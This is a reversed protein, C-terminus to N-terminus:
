PRRRAQRRSSHHPLPPAKVDLYDSDINITHGGFSANHPGTFQHILHGRWAGAPIAGDALGDIGDWWGYWVDDPEAYGTGRRAVLGATESGASGYAGSRYGAAHLGATWGSLFALVSTASRVTMGYGEMDDYIVSGRALGLAQADTVAVRAAHRGQTAALRPVISQCGCRNDPPQLGVWTPIIHWGLRTVSAVWQATLNPQACKINVGGIYVGIARYPSHLWRHMTELSPTACTDFGAGVFSGARVTAPVAARPGAIRSPRARELRATSIRLAGAIVGPHRNWTAILQAQGLDLTASASAQLSLAISTARRSRPMVLLSETRGVGGAPCAEASGPIGLYVAHRDFRVCTEPTLRVVPWGAPVQITVGAYRITRALPYAPRAGAAAPVILALLALLAALLLARTPRHTRARPM